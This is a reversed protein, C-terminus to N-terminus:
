VPLSLRTWTANVFWLYLVFLSLFGVFMLSQPVHFREGLIGILGLTASLVAIFGTVQLSTFGKEVLCHHLHGRDAKFPSFGRLTRRLVVSSIDWLPVALIWLFTVPYAANANQSLEVSFWVLVFGLMMSGSDGMFIKAKQRLPFNFCLFALLVALLLYLVQVDIFQDASHAIWSLYFLEIFGVTGALGDAGDTMNVANIVALVAVVTIPFSLLGLHINGIYFLNGLDFLTNNGWMVMMIAVCLQIFLRARPGLEHFDDLVGTGVLLVCGAILCRYDSLSVNLTLLSFGFGFFMAIGGILPINGEHTKRGGPEDVLKLRIALPRLMM